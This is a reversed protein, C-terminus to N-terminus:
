KSRPPQIRALAAAAMKRVQEETDETLKTLAPIAAKASPGLDGLAAAAQYRAQPAESALLKVLVPTATPALLRNEPDIRKISWVSGVALMPDPGTIQKMLTAVAGKAPPGISGLANTAAGRVNPDTSALLGTLATTAPVSDPGISALAMAADAVVQPNKDSLVTLLVPVAEKAAPGIRELGRIASDRMKPEKVASTLVPVAREGLEAVTMLVHDIVTPDLEALAARIAPTMADPSFNGEAL